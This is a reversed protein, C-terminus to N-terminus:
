ALGVQLTQSRSSRFTFGSSLWRCTGETVEKVDQRWGQAQVGGNQECEREEISAVHDLALFMLFSGNLITDESVTRKNRLLVEHLTKIIQASCTVGKLDKLSNKRFFLLLSHQIQLWM